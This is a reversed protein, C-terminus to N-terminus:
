RGSTTRYPAPVKSALWMLAKKEEPWFKSDVCSYKPFFDACQGSGGIETTMAPVGLEGYFDDDTTGSANYLVEGPQGIPYKNYRAMGAALAKLGANNPADTNTQGWPYLILEAASHYTLVAGTTDAPAADKAGPGRRDKFLARVLSRVAVTEPESGASKGRFTEACPATDSGTGGWLFPFNRNLDTGIETGTCGAGNDNLNKRQYEPSGGGGEVVDHGDPNIMSVVWVESSDLLKTVKSDKGYNTTLDDILRWSVEPTAIERPHIGTMVLLRPKAATPKRACDGSKKKTICLALIDHGGKGSKKLWSDGVDVLQTLTPKAKAVDALHTLQAATTRYGGYFTPYARGAPGSLDVGSAAVEAPSPGAFREVRTVFGRDALEAATRPGGIVFFDNGERKEMVDFGAAELAPVRAVGPDVVRLMLPRDDAASRGSGGGEPAPAASAALTPVALAGGLCAAVLGQRLFRKSVTV